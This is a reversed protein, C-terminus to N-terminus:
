ETCSTGYYPITVPIFNRGDEVIEPSQWPAKEVSVDAIPAGKPFAAIITDALESAPWIGKYNHRYNVEVQFFGRVLYPAEDDWALDENENPFHRVLLWMGSSPPTYEVGPFFVPATLTLDRLDDCFSTLRQTSTSM